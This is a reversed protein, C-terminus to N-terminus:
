KNKSNTIKGKVMGLGISMLIGSYPVFGVLIWLGFWLREKDQTGRIDRIRKFKNIWSMYLLPLAATIAFLYLWLIQTSPQQDVPIARDQYFGFVVMLGVLIFGIMLLAFNIFYKKRGIVGKFTMLNGDEQLPNQEM